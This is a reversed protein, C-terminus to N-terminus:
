YEDYCLQGICDMAHLCLVNWDSGGGGVRYMEEARYNGM